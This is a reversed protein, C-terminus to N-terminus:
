SNGALKPPPEEAPEAPWRRPARVIEPRYFMWDKHTKFHVIIPCGGLETRSWGVPSCLTPETQEHFPLAEFESRDIRRRPLFAVAEAIAADRASKLLANFEREAALELQAPTLGSRITPGRAVAEDMARRAAGQLEKYKDAFRSLRDRYLTALKDIAEPGAAEAAREAEGAEVDGPFYVVRASM